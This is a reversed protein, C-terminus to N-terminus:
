LAFLFKLDTLCGFMYNIRCFFRNFINIILYLKSPAFHKTVFQLQMYHMVNIGPYGFSMLQHQEPTMM